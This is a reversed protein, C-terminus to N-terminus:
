GIGAEGMQLLLMFVWFSKRAKENKNSPAKAQLNNMGSVGVGSGGVGGSEISGGGDSGSATSM